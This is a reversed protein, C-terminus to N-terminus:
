LRDSSSSGSCILDSASPAQLPLGLLLEVVGSLRDVLRGPRHTESLDLLVRQPQQAQACSGRRETTNARMLSYDRHCSHRIAQPFTRACERIPMRGIVMECHCRRPGELGGLSAVAAVVVCLFWGFVSPGAIGPDWPLVFGAWRSTFSAQRFLRAWSSASAPRRCSLRRPPAARLGLLRLSGKRIEVLVLSRDTKHIARAAYDLEEEAPRSPHEGGGVQDAQAEAARIAQAVLPM